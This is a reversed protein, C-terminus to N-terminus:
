QWAPSTMAEGGIRRGLRVLSQGLQHRFPRATVVVARDADRISRLREQRQQVDALRLEIHHMHLDKRFTHHHRTHRTRELSTM